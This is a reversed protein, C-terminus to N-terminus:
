QWWGCQQQINAEEDRGNLCVLGFRYAIVAAFTRELSEQVTEPLEEIVVGPRGAVRSFPPIVTNPAVVTGEEIRVCDKIISFKGQWLM